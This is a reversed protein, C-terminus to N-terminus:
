ELVRQKELLYNAIKGFVDNVNRGTKASTEVIDLLTSISRYENYSSVRRQEALDAKNAFIAFEINEGLIQRADDLWVQVNQYSRPNTLDFVIIVFRAGTYYVKKFTAFKSQGAVDWLVLSIATKGDGAVMDKKLFDVGLTTIYEESFANEVYRRILSTKGVSPDGIVMIKFVFRQESM